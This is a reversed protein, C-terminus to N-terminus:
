FPAKPTKLRESRVFASRGQSLRVLLTSEQAEVVGFSTRNSASQRSACRSRRASLKAAQEAAKRAAGDGEETGSSRKLIRKEERLYGPGSHKSSTGNGAYGGHSNHKSGDKRQDQRVESSHSMSFIVRRGGSRHPSRASLSKKGAMRADDATTATTTSTKPAAKVGLLVFTSALSMRGGSFVPLTSTCAAECAPNKIVDGSKAPSCRVTREKVKSKQPVFCSPWIEQNRLCTLCSRPFSRHFVLRTNFSKIVRYCRFHHKTEM